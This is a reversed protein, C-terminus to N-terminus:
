IQNFVHVSPFQDSSGHRDEFLQSWSQGFNHITYTSCFIRSLSNMGKSETNSATKEESKDSEETQKKSEEKDEAVKTENDKDKSDADIEEKDKAPDEKEKDISTDGNEKTENESKKEDGAKEGNMESEKKNNAVEEKEVENGKGEIKKDAEPEGNAKAVEAKDASENKDHDVNNETETKTDKIEGDEPKDNGNKM